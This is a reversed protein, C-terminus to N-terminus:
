VTLAAREADPADGPFPTVLPDLDDDLALAAPVAFESGRERILQNVPVETSRSGGAPILGGRDAGIPSM